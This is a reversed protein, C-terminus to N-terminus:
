KNKKCFNIIAQLKIREQRCLEYNLARSKIDGGSKVARQYMEPYLISIRNTVKHVEKRLQHFWQDDEIDVAAGNIISLIKMKAQDKTMDYHEYLALLVKDRNLVYENLTPCPISNKDFIEKLLTPHCNKLDIDIHGKSITHRVQRCITQLSYPAYIRGDPNLKSPKYQINAAGTNADHRNYFKTFITRVVEKDEIENYNEDKQSIMGEEWLLDFNALIKKMADMDITEECSIM